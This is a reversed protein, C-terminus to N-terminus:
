GSSEKCTMSASSETPMSPWPKWTGTWHLAYLLNTAETLAQKMADAVRGATDRAREYLQPTHEVVM